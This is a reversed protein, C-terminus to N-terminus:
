CAPSGLWARCAPGARSMSTSTFRTITAPSAVSYRWRQATLLRCNCCKLFLGKLLIEVGTGALLRGAVYYFWPTDGRDPFAEMIPSATRPLPELFLTPTVRGSAVLSEMGHEHYVRWDEPWQSNMGIERPDKVWKPLKAM